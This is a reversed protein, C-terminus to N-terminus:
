VTEIVIRSALRARQLLDAYEGIRLTEERVDGLKYSGSM